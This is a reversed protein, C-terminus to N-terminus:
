SRPAGATAQWDDEGMGADGVAPHPVLEPRCEGGFTIDDPQVKAPETLGRRTRAAQEARDIVHEVRQGLGADLATM